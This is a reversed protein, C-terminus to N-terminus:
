PKLIFSVTTDTLRSPTSTEFIVAFRQQAASSPPLKIKFGFNQLPMYYDYSGLDSQNMKGLLGSKTVVDKNVPSYKHIDELTDTEVLNTYFVCSDAIDSGAQFGDSYNNLTIIRLSTIKEVQIYPNREKHSAYARTVLSFDSGSAFQVNPTRVLILHDSYLVQQQEKIEGGSTTDFVEAVPHIYVYKYQRYNCATLVIVLSLCFFLKPFYMRTM